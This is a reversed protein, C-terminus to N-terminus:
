GTVCRRRRGYALALSGLVLVTLSAPEPVAIWGSGGGGSGISQIKAAAPWAGDCESLFDFSDATLAPIGSIEYTISDGSTFRKSGGGSNSTAFAFLIDFYGDGGAKFGNEDTSITPDEFAGTSGTRTFILDDVDLGPDFNLYTSRMFESGTLNVDTLTLSVSGATGGDDLIIRIWPGAGAPPTAGSYEHSLEYTLIAAEGSGGAAALTMVVLFGAGIRRWSNVRIKM